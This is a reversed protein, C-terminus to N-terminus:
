PGVGQVCLIANVKGFEKTRNGSSLREKECASQVGLRNPAHQYLTFYTYLGFDFINLFYKIM